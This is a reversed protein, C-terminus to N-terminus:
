KKVAPPRSVSNSNPSSVSNNQKKVQENEKEKQEILMKLYFYRLSIPLDYVDSHTFGGNSNYILCFLETHIRIRDEPLL